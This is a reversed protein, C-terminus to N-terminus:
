EFSSDFLSIEASCAYVQIDDVYWGIVGNCGDIGFDFRLRVTDEAKVLGRLDIQSQGWSGNNSGQDTGTFAPEGALPNTNGVSASNLTSNYANFQFASDSLLTWTGGNVSIKINGGDWNTETSLWHNFAVRPVNVGTPITITPSELFLVGTEDDTTCNGIILDAVFAASNGGAGTPLNTVVSWNPTDFTAANAVNRTGTNWGAPLAGSEWDELLINEVTGRNTCLAPANEDLLTTFGCQDPEMRFEVANNTKAVEACDTSTIIQGSLGANTTNTSLAPLNMGLLSSCAAELADAHDIFNSAPTLMNQAAWHIHAAKTLGIGSITEGNYSGGDVMLAFAHNAVGSNIHVGGSDIINGGSDFGCFYQTDSVKGPDNLCNPNWMDRLVNGFAPNDEGVLWRYSNDVKPSGPSFISCSGASRPNNPFDTGRGNLLDVVEGWIDSYAENLAGSQWQYILNNTFQTYAHGWEHAVTDDGTVNSCYNTSIGNWRANPCNIASDNNVTLMTADANDYSLYTGGTMSAFLNYTERAGDIENQWDSIQQTSGSAWNVPIPDPHGVSDQWIINALNNESVKRDLAHHIGTIQDIIGGSHADIYVFERITMALNAVEVEYALHITGPIGQLLGAQFIVPRNGITILDAAFNGQTRQQSLVEATATQEAQDASLDPVTNLALKPIFTGNVASLRNNQDHHTKLIGAFVEIGQYTQQYSIRSHGFVNRSTEIYQLEGAADTIGFAGGYRDLFNDATARASVARPFLKTAGPLRVFRVVGTQPDPRIEATNNSDQLLQNIAASQAHAFASVMIVAIITTIVFITLRLLTDIGNTRM